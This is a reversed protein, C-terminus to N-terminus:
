TVNKKSTSTRTLKLNLKKGKSLTKPANNGQDIKQVHKQNQTKTKGHKLAASAGMNLKIQNLKANIHFPRKQKNNVFQQQRWGGGQFKYSCSVIEYILINSGGQCHNASVFRNSLNSPFVNKYSATHTIMKQVGNTMLPEIFFVRHKSNLLAEIESSLIYAKMGTCDLPIGVYANDKNFQMMRGGIGDERGICEYLWNDNRSDYLIQISQRDYVYLSSKCAVTPQGVLVIADSNEKLYETVDTIDEYAIPDFASRGHDKIFTKFDQGPVKRLGISEIDNDSDSYYSSNEYGEVSSYDNDDEITNYEGLGTESDLLFALFRSNYKRLVTMLRETFRKYYTRLTDDSLTTSDTHNRIGGAKRIAENLDKITFGKLKQLIRIFKHVSFVHQSLIERLISKVVWEEKDTVKQSRLEFRVSNAPPMIDIQFGRRTYKELRNVIFQNYHKVLYESYERRLQTKRNEIGTKDTAYVNNGDYWVECCVLDFNQVVDQLPVDDPLVMIDFPKNLQFRGHFRAIIKNKKFFSQDYAPALHESEFRCNLKDSSLLLDYLLILDKANVYIDLDRSEFNAYPGLVSGGAILANSQIIAKNLDEHGKVLHKLRKRFIEVDLIDPLTSNRGTIPPPM